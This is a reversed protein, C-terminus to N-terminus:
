QVAVSWPEGWSPAYNGRLICMEATLAENAWRLPTQLDDNVIECEWVLADGTKLDLLGAHGGPTQTRRDSPPNDHVSDYAFVDAHEWDFTEYVM